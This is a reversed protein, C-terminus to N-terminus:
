SGADDLSQPVTFSSSTQHSIERVYYETYVNEDSYYMNPNNKSSRFLNAAVMM